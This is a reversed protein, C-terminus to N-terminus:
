WEIHDTADLRGLPAFVIGNAFGQVRLGEVDIEGTLPAGLQHARAHATFASNRIYAVGRTQWMHRRIAEADIAPPQARTRDPATDTTTDTPRDRPGTDERPQAQWVAFFSVHHNNPLGGGCVVDAAGAPCWCWAGREGREPNFSNFIPQNAWGSHQKPTAHVFGTYNADGLREFGDSWYRILKEQVIPQGGADLVRAFLHHDGGADDFFDSAGMPRLYKERAWHTVSGLKDSPEWSGTNTTFLDILRYVPDGPPRDPRDECRVVQMNFRSSWDSIM